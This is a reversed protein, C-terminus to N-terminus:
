LLHLYICGGIDVWQVEMELIIVTIDWRIHQRHSALHLILAVVVFLEPVKFCLWLPSPLQLLLSYEMAAKKLQNLLKCSSACVSSSRAGCNWYFYKGLDMMAQAVKPLVLLAYYLLLVWFLILTSLEM